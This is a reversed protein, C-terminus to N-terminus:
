EELIENTVKIVTNCVQKFIDETIADLGEFYPVTVSERRLKFEKNNNTLKIVIASLASTKKNYGTIKYYEYEDISKYSKVAYKNVCKEAKRLYEEHLLAIKEDSLNSSEEFLKNIKDSCIKMDHNIVEKKALIEELTLKSLDM